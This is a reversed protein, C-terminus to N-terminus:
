HTFLMVELADQSALFVPTLRAIKRLDGDLRALEDISLNSELVAILALADNTGFFKIFNAFEFASALAKVMLHDPEGKEEEKQM